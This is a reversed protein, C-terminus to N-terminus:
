LHNKSAFRSTDMYPWDDCAPIPRNKVILVGHIKGADIAATSRYLEVVGLLRKGYEKLAGNLALYRYLTPKTIGQEKCLESIAM